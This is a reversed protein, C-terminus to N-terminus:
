PSLSFTALPWQWSFIPLYSAYYHGLEIFVFTKKFYCGLLASVIFEFMLQRIPYLLIMLINALM